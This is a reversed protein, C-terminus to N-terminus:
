RDKQRLWPLEQQIQWQKKWKLAYYNNVTFAIGLIFVMCIVISVIASKNKM